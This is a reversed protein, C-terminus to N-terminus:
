QRLEKQEPSQDMRLRSKFEDKSPDLGISSIYQSIEENLDRESYIFAGMFFDANPHKSDDYYIFGSKMM